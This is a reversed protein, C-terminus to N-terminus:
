ELFSVLFCALLLLDWIKNKLLHHPKIALAPDKTLLASTYVLLVMLLALEPVPWGEEFLQYFSFLLLAYAFARLGHCVKPTYYRLVAKHQAARVSGLLKIDSRRKHTLFMLVLAFLFGFYSLQYLEPFSELGAMMRLTFNACILLLDLIPINKLGLSYTSTFLFYLGVLVAYFTGLRSIVLLVVFALLAVVILAETGTVKGSALPRNKKTPHLRDKDRDLWDNAIYTVSSIACFGLFGLPLLYWPQANTAFLLPAFILLNKYWQEIRLLKRLLNLKEM